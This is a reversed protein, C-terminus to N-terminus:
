NNRIFGQTNFINNNNVVKYANYIQNSNIFDNNTVLAIQFNNNFEAINLYNINWKVYAPMIRNAVTNIIWLFPNSELGGLITTIGLESSGPVGLQWGIFTTYYININYQQTNFDWVVEVPAAEGNFQFILRSLCQAISFAQTSTQTNINMLTKLFQAPYVANQLFNTAEIYVEEWQLNYSKEVGVSTLSNWFLNYIYDYLAKITESSAYNDIANLPEEVSYISPLEKNILQELNIANINFQQRFVYFSFPIPPNTNSLKDYFLVTYSGEVDTQLMYDNIVTLDNNFSYAKYQSPLLKTICSYEVAKQNYYGAQVVLPTNTTNYTNNLGVFYQTM